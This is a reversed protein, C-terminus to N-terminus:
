GKRPTSARIVPTVGVTVSGSGDGPGDLALDLALRALLATPVRVTTLGPTVDVLPNVDGFGTLAFDEPVRLRSRRAENLAGLAVVDAMAVVVDFDLTAEIALRLGVSGGVRTLDSSILHSPPITHGLAAMRAIFAQSRALATSHKEPGTLVLPATYGLAVLSEALQGAGAENDLRVCDVGPFDM